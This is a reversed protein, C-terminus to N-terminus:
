VSEGAEVNNNCIRYSVGQQELFLEANEGQLMAMTALMGVELCTDGQVTVTAPAGPAPFGSRPDLIHGYRVGNQLLFRRTDGSTAIAGKHLKIVETVGRHHHSEIAVGWADGNRRPGTVVIDGGFNVVASRIGLQSFLLAVRDVAYEKGIGGLDIEMGPLLRLYPSQWQVKDWGIIDLLDRLQSATPVKPHKNIEDGKFRWVRRLVGSTIDFAGDSLVFCQQAYDLLLATEADVECNEGDSNNIEYVISDKRYRSYKVEIRSAEAAAVSIAKLALQRDEVDVLVECPNAMAEFRGLWYGGTKTVNIGPKAVTHFQRVHLHCNDSEVTM